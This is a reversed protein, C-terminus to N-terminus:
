QENALNLVQNSFSDFGSQFIFLIQNQFYTVGSFTIYTPRHVELKATKPEFVM